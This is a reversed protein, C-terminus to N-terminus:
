NLNLNRVENGFVSKYLSCISLYKGELKGFTFYYINESDNECLAGNKKPHVSSIVILSKPKHHPNTLPKAALWGGDVRLIFFLRDNLTGMRTVLFFMPIVSLLIARRFFSAALYPRIKCFM